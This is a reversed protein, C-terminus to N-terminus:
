ATRTRSRPAPSRRARPRSARRRPSCRPSASTRRGRPSSRPAGARSGRRDRRDAAAPRLEELPEAGLLPEPRYGLQDVCIWVPRRSRGRPSRGLLRKVNRGLFDSPQAVDRVGPTGQSTKEHVSLDRGRRKGRSERPLLSMDPRRPSSSTRSFRIETWCSRLACSSCCFVPVRMPVASILVPAISSDFSVSKREFCYPTGAILRLSNSMSGSIMLSTGFSTASFCRTM